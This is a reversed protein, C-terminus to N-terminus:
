QESFYWHPQRYVHYKRKVKIRTRCSTQGAPSVATASYLAAMSPKVHSIILRHIDGESQVKYEPTDSNIPKDGKTWQVTPEPYGSVIVEVTIAEGEVTDIVDPAKQVFKPAQKKKPRATIDAHYLSCTRSLLLWVSGVSYDSTM